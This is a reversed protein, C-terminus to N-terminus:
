SSGRMSKPRGSKVEFGALEVASGEGEPSDAVRVFGNVLSTREGDRGPGDVPECEDGAMDPVSLLTADQLRERVLEVAPEVTVLGLAAM